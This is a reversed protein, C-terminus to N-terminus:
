DAFPFRFSGFRNAFLASGDKMFNVVYMFFVVCM